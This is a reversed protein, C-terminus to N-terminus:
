HVPGDFVGLLHAPRRTRGQDGHQVGLRGLATEQQGPAAVEEFGIALRLRVHRRGQGEQVLPRREVRGQLSGDIGNMAEGIAFPRLHLAGHRQSLLSPDTLRDLGHARALALAVHVFQARGHVREIGQFGLPDLVSPDRRFPRANQRHDHVGDRPKQDDNQGQQRGPQHPSVHGLDLGGTRREVGGVGAQLVLNALAGAVQHARVLFDLAEGIDDAM